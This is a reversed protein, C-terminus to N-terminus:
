SWTPTNSYITLDYCHKHSKLFRCICHLNNKNSGQFCCNISKLQTSKNAHHALILAREPHCMSCLRMIGIHQDDFSYRLMYFTRHTLPDLVVDWFHNFNNAATKTSVNTNTPKVLLLEDVQKCHYLVFPIWDSIKVLKSVRKSRVM